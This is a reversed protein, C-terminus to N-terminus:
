HAGPTKQISGVIAGSDVALLEVQTGYSAYLRRAAADVTLYDWSGQGPIPIKKIISYVGEAAGAPLVLCATLMVLIGYQKGLRLFRSIMMSNFTREPPGCTKYVCAQPDVKKRCACASPLRFDGRDRSDPRSSEM